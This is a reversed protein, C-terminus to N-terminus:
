FCLSLKLGIIHAEGGEARELASFPYDPVGVGPIPPAKVGKPESSLVSLRQQRLGGSLSQVGEGGEARELASFPSSFAAPAACSMAGEGGEARELASFSPSLIATVPYVKVKVGKPESSLVSLSPSPFTRQGTHGGKM